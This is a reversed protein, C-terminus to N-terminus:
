IADPDYLSGSPPADYILRLPPFTTRGGHFTQKGGVSHEFIFAGHAKGSKCRLKAAHGCGEKACAFALRLQSATRQIITTITHNAEFSEFSKGELTLLYSQFDQMPEKLAEEIRNNLRDLIDLSEFVGPFKRGLWEERL